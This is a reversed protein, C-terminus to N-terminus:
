DSEMDDELQSAKAADKKEAEAEEAAEMKKKLRFWRKNAANTSLGYEKALLEHNPQWTANNDDTDHLNLNSTWSISVTVGGSLRTVKWLFMLDREATTEGFKSPTSKSPTRKTVKKPTEPSKPVVDKKPPM